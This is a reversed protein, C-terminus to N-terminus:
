SQTYGEQNEEQLDQESFAGRWPSGGALEHAPIRYLITYRVVDVFDKYEESPKERHMTEDKDLILGYNELAAIINPCCSHIVIKPMNTPGVPYDRSYRLMEIIRQEGIETRHTNPVRSDFPMGCEAMQEAWGTQTTGHLSHEAKGFRPDCVRITAPDGGEISRFLSAYASPALGGSQMRVFEGPPWERFFYYTGWPSLRWWAVAAPRVHHPDVTMGQLWDRQLPAPPVVIPPENTFNRIIRSGLSEWDGELRARKESESCRLGRSFATRQEAGFYPNDEQRVQVELTDDDLHRIVDTYLWTARVGLPTLTFWIHGSDMALGRWLGTYVIRKTPEDCWAWQIRSGEWGLDEQEASALFMESGNPFRIYVPVGQPGRTVKWQKKVSPPVTEEILPWVVEGVGQLLKLGSVIMGKNPIQIPVGEGTRIWYRPDVKDRSPLDGGHLQLNPVEWFRYGYAHALSEYWGLWTKGSKNAGRIV